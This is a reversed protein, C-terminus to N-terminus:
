WCTYLRWFTIRILMNHGTCFLPRSAPIEGLGSSINGFNVSAYLNYVDWLKGCSPYLSVATGAPHSEPVSFFPRKFNFKDSYEIIPNPTRSAEGVVKPFYFLHVSRKEARRTFPNIEPKWVLSENPRHTFFSYSFGKSACLHDIKIATEESVLSM